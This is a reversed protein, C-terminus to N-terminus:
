RHVSSQASRMLDELVDIARRVDDPTSLALQSWADRAVPSLGLQQWGLEGRELKQRRRLEAARLHALRGLLSALQALLPRRQAEEASRLADARLHDAREARMQALAARRARERELAAARDM